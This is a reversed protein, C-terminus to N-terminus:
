ALDQADAMPKASAVTNDTWNEASDAFPPAPQRKTPWVVVFESMNQRVSAFLVHTESGSQGPRIHTAAGTDSDQQRNQAL